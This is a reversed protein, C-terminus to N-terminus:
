KEINHEIKQLLNDVDNVCNKDANIGIRFTDVHSLMSIGLGIKSM